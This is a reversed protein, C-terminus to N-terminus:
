IVMSDSTDLSQHSHVGFRIFGTKSIHLDVCILVIRVM